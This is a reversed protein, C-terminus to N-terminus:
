ARVRDLLEPRSKAARLADIASEFEPVPEGGGPMGASPGDTSLDGRIQNERLLDARVLERLGDPGLADLALMRVTKTGDAGQLNRLADRGAAGRTSWGQITTALKAKVEELKPGSLHLDAAVSELHRTLAQQGLTSGQQGLQGRIDQIESELAQIKREEETMLVDDDDLEESRGTRPGSSVTGTQVFSRVLEGMQPHNLMTELTGLSSALANGDYGKDFYGELSGIRQSLERVQGEARDARSQQNKAETLAFDGGARLRAEYDSSRAPQAGDATQTADTTGASAPDTTATPETM